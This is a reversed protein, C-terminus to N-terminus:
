PEAYVNERPPVGLSVTVVEEHKQNLIVQKM